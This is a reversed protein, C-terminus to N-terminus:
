KKCNCKKNGYEGCDVCKEVDHIAKEKRIEEEIVELTPLKFPLRNQLYNLIEQKKIM